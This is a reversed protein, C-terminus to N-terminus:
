WRERRLVAQIERRPRVSVPREVRDQSCQASASPPSLRAETPKATSGLTDIRRYQDGFSKSVQNLGMGRCVQTFMAPRVM